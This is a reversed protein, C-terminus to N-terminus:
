KALALKLQQSDIKVMTMMAKMAKGAKVPDPDAIMEILIKPDIQWSV